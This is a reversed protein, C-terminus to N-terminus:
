VKTYNAKWINVWGIRYAAEWQIERKYRRTNPDLITFQESFVNGVGEEQRWPRKEDEERPMSRVELFRWRNFDGKDELILSM